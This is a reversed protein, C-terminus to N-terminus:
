YHTPHTQSHRSISWETGHTNVYPTLNTPNTSCHTPYWFIDHSVEKQATHAQTPHWDLAHEPLTHSQYLIKLLTYSIPIPRLTSLETLLLPTRIFITYQTHTHTCPTLCISPIAHWVLCKKNNQCGGLTAPKQPPLVSRKEWPPKVKLHTPRKSPIAHPAICATHLTRSVTHQLISRYVPHIEM